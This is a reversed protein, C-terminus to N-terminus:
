LIATYDYWHSLPASYIFIRFVEIWPFLKDNTEKLRNRIVEFLGKMFPLCQSADLNDILQITKRRLIQSLEQDLHLDNIVSLVLSCSELDFIYDIMCRAIRTSLMKGRSKDIQVASKSISVFVDVVRCRTSSDFSQLLAEMRLWIGQIEQFKESVSLKSDRLVSLFGQELETILVNREKPSCGEVLIRGLLALLTQERLSQNLLLARVTELISVLDEAVSDEQFHSEIGSRVHNLLENRTKEPLTDLFLEVDNPDRHVLKRLEEQITQIHSM